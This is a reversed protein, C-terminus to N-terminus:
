AGEIMRRQEDSLGALYTMQAAEDPTFGAAILAAGARMQRADILHKLGAARARERAAQVRRAFAADGALAIELAPDADFPIKIPFRSLFAADMRNRGVFDATAGTGWTNGAGVIVCNPHRQVTRDPFPCYGNSLPLNLALTADPGWSDLEDFLVLGGFEFARRFETAHYNGAADVFGLLEFTQNMAGHAFFDLGLAQAVQKCAHSKGVATGGTLFIQPAFGDPTRATAARILKALQPHSHGETTGTTGDWRAVEIRVTQVNELRREVMRTIEPGLAGMIHPLVMAALAAGAADGTPAITPAPFPEPGSTAAPPPNETGPRVSVIRNGTTGTATAASSTGATTGADTATATSNIRRATEIAREVYRLQADTAWGGQKTTITSLIALAKDAMEDHGLARLRTQIEAFRRAADTTTEPTNTREKMNETETDANQLTQEIDIGLTACANLTETSTLGSADIGRTKRYDQWGPHKIIARRLILREDITLKRHETMSLGKRVATSNVSGKRMIRGCSDVRISPKKGATNQYWM